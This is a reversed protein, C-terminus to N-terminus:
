FVLDVYAFTYGLDASNSSTFPIKLEGFVDKEEILLSCYEMFKNTESSISPLLIPLPIM